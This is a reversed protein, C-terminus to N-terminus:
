KLVKDILQYLWSFVDHCTRTGDYKSWQINLVDYVADHLLRRTEVISCTELNVHNCYVNLRKVFDRVRKFFIQQVLLKMM